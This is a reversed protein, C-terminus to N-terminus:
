RRKERWQALSIVNAMSPQFSKVQRPDKWVLDALVEADPRNWFADERALRAKREAETEFRRSM